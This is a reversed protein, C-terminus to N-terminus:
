RPRYTYFEKGDISSLWEMNEEPVTIIQSIGDSIFRQDPNKDFYDIYDYLGVNDVKMESARIRPISSHDFRTDYPSRGPNWGVNMVAINNYVTGAHSGSILYAALSPDSPREGYPLALTNVDYDDRGLLIKLFQAQSGIQERITDSSATKLSVHDRTHNGIDMGHDVIFRLKQSALGSQKFPMDGDIFFTAELPFDPHKQHFDLLLGIASVSDISGDELYKFNNLNGDDFTLVIPTLGQETSINGTVYDTLSIPRYGKTYLTNLDNTFNSPTRVWESEENGINHYMLVMVKGAENPKMDLNISAKLDEPSISDSIASPDPPQETAPSAGAEKESSGATSGCGAFLFIFMFIVAISFVKKM